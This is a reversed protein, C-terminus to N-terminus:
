LVERGKDPGAYLTREMNKLLGPVQSYPLCALMENDNLRSRTRGGWDGITFVPKKEVLPFPVAMICMAGSAYGNVVQGTDFSYATSIICMQHPDVPFMVIDPQEVQDLPGIIVGKHIKPFRPFELNAKSLLDHTAMLKGEGIILADMVMNFEEKNSKLTGIGIMMSGGCVSAPATFYVPKGDGEFIDGCIACWFHPGEERPVEKPKTNVYKMAVIHRNLSLKEKLAEDVRRNNFDAKTKGKGIADMPCNSRCIGCDSCLPTVVYQGRKQIIARDPCAAFCAGCEVCLDDKITYPM